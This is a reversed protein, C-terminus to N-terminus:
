SGRKFANLNLRAGGGVEDIKERMVVIAASIWPSVLNTWCRWDLSNALLTIIAVTRKRGVACADPWWGLAWHGGAGVRFAGEGSAGFFDKVVTTTCPLLLWVQCSTGMCAGSFAWSMVGSYVLTFQLILMSSAEGIGPMRVLSVMREALFWAREDEPM